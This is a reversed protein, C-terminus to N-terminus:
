PSEYIGFEPDEAIQRITEADFNGGMLGRSAQVPNVTQQPESAVTVKVRAHETLPVPTLPKLVGDEYTAEFTFNM